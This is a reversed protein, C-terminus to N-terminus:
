RPAQPSGASDSDPQSQGLGREQQHQGKAARPKTPRTRPPRFEHRFVECEDLHQGLLERLRVSSLSGQEGEEGGQQREGAAQQEDAAASRGQQQQQQEHRVLADYLQENKVILWADPFAQRQAAVMQCILDLPSKGSIDIMIRNFTGAPSLRRTACTDLGDLVHFPLHPHRQAAIAVVEHATDIGCVFTARNSIINTTMGAPPAPRPKQPPVLPPALHRDLTPPSLQTLAALPHSISTRISSTTNWSPYGQMYLSTPLPPSPLPPHMPGHLCRPCSLLRRDVRVPGPLVACATCTEQQKCTDAARHKESM